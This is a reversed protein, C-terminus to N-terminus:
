SGAQLRVLYDVIPAVDADDIPAKFIKRMKNVEATWVAASLKPQTLVMEVSHCARCASNVTDAGPGVFEEDDQPLHLNLSSLTEAFAPAAALLAAVAGLASIRRSIKM